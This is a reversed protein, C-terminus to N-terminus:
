AITIEVASGVAFCHEKDIKTVTVIINDGPYLQRVVMSRAPIFCRVTKDKIYAIARKTGPEVAIVQGM